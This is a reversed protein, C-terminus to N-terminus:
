GCSNTKPWVIQSGILIECKKQFTCKKDMDEEVDSVLLLEVVLSQRYIVVLSKEKRQLADSKKSQL